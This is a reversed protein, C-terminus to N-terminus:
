LEIGAHESIKNKLLGVAIVKVMELTANGGTEAVTKKTKEWIGDDRIAEIFDHGQATLRYASGEKNSVMYGSDCLLRLHYHKKLENPPSHFNFDVLHIGEESSEIEFLLERLFEKDRKM